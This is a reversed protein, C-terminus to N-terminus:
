LPLNQLGVLLRNLHYFWYVALIMYGPQPPILLHMGNCHFILFFIHGCLCMFLNVSERSLKGRQSPYSGIYRRRGHHFQHVVTKSHYTECLQSQTQNPITSSQLYFSPHNIYHNIGCYTESHPLHNLLGPSQTLLKRYLFGTVILLVSLLTDMVCEM